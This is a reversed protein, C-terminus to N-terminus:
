LRDADWIMQETGDVTGDGDLDADQPYPKPSTTTSASNDRLTARTVNAPAATTAPIATPRDLNAHHPHHIPFTRRPTSADTLGASTTNAPTATTAPKVAPRRAVPQSEIGTVPGKQLREVAAEETASFLPDAHTAALAADREEAVREDGGAGLELPVWLEAPSKGTVERRLHLRKEHARESDAQAALVADLTAQLLQRKPDM